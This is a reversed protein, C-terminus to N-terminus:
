WQICVIVVIPMLLSFTVFQIKLVYIYEIRHIKNKFDKFLNNLGRALTTIRITRTTFKRTNYTSGVNYDIYSSMSIVDLSSTVELITNM